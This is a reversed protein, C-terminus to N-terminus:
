CVEKSIITHVHKYGLHKMQREWGKRGVIYVELCDQTKALETAINDIQEFWKDMDDGGACQIHVVKKGSEFTTMEFSCVAILKSDDFVTALLVEKSEIRKKIVDIDLEGNSEDIAQILYPKILDWCEFIIEPTPIAIKIM